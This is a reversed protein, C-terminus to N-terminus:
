SRQGAAIARDTYNALPSLVLSNKERETEGHKGWTEMKIKDFSKSSYFHFVFEKIVYNFDM